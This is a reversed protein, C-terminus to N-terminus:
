APRWEEKWMKNNAIHHIVTTSINFTEAIYKRPVGVSLQERILTVDDWTLKANIHEEGRYPTLRQKNGRDEINQQHTGLWLHCPNCCLGNDCTHCVELGDPIDGYSLIYAARHASTKKGYLSTTGYMKDVGWRSYQWPWCENLGGRKVGEWFRVHPDRAHRGM